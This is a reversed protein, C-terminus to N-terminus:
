SRVMSQSSTSRSEGRDHYSFPWKVIQWRSSCVSVCTQSKRVDDDGFDPKFASPINRTGPEALVM